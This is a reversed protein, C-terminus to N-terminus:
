KNLTVDLVNIYTPIERIKFAENIQELLDAKVAFYDSKKVWVRYTFVIAGSEYNSVRAYIDKEQLVSPHHKALTELTDKVLDVDADGAVKIEMDVRREDNASTNTIIGNSLTGNPVSINKNDPTTLYTYFITISQVTGSIGNSDIFDGVKFPKFILLMIGGAFNSLSGQLALGVAVGASGIATILSATPLGLVGIITIALIAYLSFKLLNGVFIHVTEDLKAVKKSKKYLKMIFDILFKGGIAIAIAIILDKGFEIAYGAVTTLFNEM